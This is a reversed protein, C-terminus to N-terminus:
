NPTPLINKVDEHWLRVPGKAEKRPGIKMRYVHVKGASIWNRLTKPKLGLFQAAYDITWWPSESRNEVKTNSIM